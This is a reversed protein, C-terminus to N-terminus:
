IFWLDILVFRGPTSGPYQQWSMNKLMVSVSYSAICSANWICSITFVAAVTARPFVPGFGSAPSLLERIRCTFATRTGARVQQKLAYGFPWTM